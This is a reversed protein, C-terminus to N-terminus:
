LSLKPKITVAETQGCLTDGDVAEFAVIPMGGPGYHHKVQFAVKGKGKIRSTLKGFIRVVM